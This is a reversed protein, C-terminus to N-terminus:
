DAVAEAVRLRDAPVGFGACLDRVRERVAALSAEDEPARLTAAILDAVEDMEALGMGRTTIAPTGLRIGSAVTAKRTEGPVTNKNTTIAVADLLKEAAKGSLSVRSKALDILMLHNDTGGSVIHMGRDQLAGALRRANAIVDQAYGKFDPQLAEGFAVAKGAIVHMLPGGQIGPLVASNLKKALDENNTLILGGRPGRLTKHTTTTVVDAYGVPTPYEGAAVLGAVHAIDAMLFAGVRDAVQRFRAFDLRRSYASFGAIILKPRFEEAQRALDDYDILDTEPELDYHRVEFWRGSINNPLGHSLHGGNALSQSLIRDGPQLLAFFAALNAQAGAHPQVNAYGVGFLRKAREIALTEVEDVYECGGYYRRGPYGEAYKNTLVSGVASMVAASTYNESAILEINDRQRRQEGAIAAAVAPDQLSLDFV